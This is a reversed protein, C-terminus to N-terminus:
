LFIKDIMFTFIKTNMLHDYLGGGGGCGVTINCTSDLVIIMNQAHLGIEKLSSGKQPGNKSGCRVM